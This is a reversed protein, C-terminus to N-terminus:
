AEKKPWKWAYWIILLAAVFGWFENFQLGASATKAISAIPRGEGSLIGSLSMLKLAAFLIGLILSLYRNVSDKLILCIWAMICPVLFLVTVEFRAIDHFQTELLRKTAESGLLALLLTAAFNVAQIIWLVSIIAKRRLPEM